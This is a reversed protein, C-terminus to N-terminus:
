KAPPNDDSDSLRDALNQLTKSLFGRAKKTVKEPEEAPLQSGEKMIRQVSRFVLGKADAGLQEVTNEQFELQGLRQWVEERSARSASGEKQGSPRVSKATSAGPTTFTVREGPTTGAAVGSTPTGGTTRMCASIGLTPYTLEESEFQFFVPDHGYPDVEGPVQSPAFRLGLVKALFSLLVITGGPSVLKDWFVEHLGMKPYSRGVTCYLQLRRVDESFGAGTPMLLIHEGAKLSSETALLGAKGKIAKLAAAGLHDKSKLRFRVREDLFTSTEEPSM